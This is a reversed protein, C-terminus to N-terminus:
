LVIVKNKLECDDEDDDEFVSPLSYSQCPPCVPAAKKPMLDISFDDLSYVNILSM